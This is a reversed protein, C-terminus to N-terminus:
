GYGGYGGGGGYGGYGGGKEWGGGGGKGSDGGKKDTGWKVQIPAEADERIKYIGNLVKIADDAAQEQEYFVFAAVRGSMAHPAMVHIKTVQGYTSFVTNMEEETIDMPLGGVFLKYGDQDM